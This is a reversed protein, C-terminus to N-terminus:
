LDNGTDSGLDQEMSAVSELLADLTEPSRNAFLIQIVSRMQEDLVERSFGSANLADLTAIETAVDAIQYDRSWQVSLATTADIGLWLGVVYFVSREFDEMRMAFASLSANLAQFRITLALGSEASKEGTQATDFGIEKVKQEIDKIVSQYTTAPGDPPAVFSVPSPTVIGREKGLSAVADTLSKILAVQRAQLSEPLEDGVPSLMPFQASFIPFTHRRLIEDLESRLNMLRKSLAVLGSFEGECPYYGSETFVLVPCIGLGHNGQRITDKGDTILWNDSDWTIFIQKGDETDTFTVSDFGGRENMIYETVREPKIMSLYPVPREALQDQAPMDVLVLMTGRAKAEVMFSQLFIDISNGRWDADDFVAQLSANETQRLPQRKSLYGVFRMCAPRIDNVYWAVEKRKEFQDDTESPYQILAGGKKFTGSGDLADSVEQFISAM